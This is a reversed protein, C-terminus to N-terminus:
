TAQHQKPTTGYKKKFAQIFNSLSEYGVLHYIESPAKTKLLMSAHELRQEKFWKSPPSHYQKYFSRKFTSLSMNSLFALESLSLKEYKNAEVVKTLQKEISTNNNFFPSLFETGYTEILYHMLEHFKNGLIKEKVLPKLNYIHELSTVFNKLFPDYSFQQIPSLTNTKNPKINNQSIFNEIAATSVFLLLSKYSTNQHTLRETMLCHGKRMFLFKKNDIAIPENQAFVQKYGDTLFSFTNMQLSVKHKNNEKHTQYRYMQFDQHSELGLYEPLQYIEM